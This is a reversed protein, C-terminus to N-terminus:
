LSIALTVEPMAQQDDEVNDLDRTDTDHFYLIIELIFSTFFM